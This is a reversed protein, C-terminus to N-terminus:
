EAVRTEEALPYGYARMKEAVIPTAEAVDAPSLRSLSEANMDAIPFRRGAIILTGDTFSMDPESLGLFAFLEKLTGVPDAMLGEYNLTYAQRLRPLAEDIEENVVRWQEALLSM